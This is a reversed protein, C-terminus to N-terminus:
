HDENVVLAGTRSLKCNKIIWMKMQKKYIKIFLDPDGHEKLMPQSEFSELCPKVTLWYFVDKPVRKLVCTRGWHDRYFYNFGAEVSTALFLFILVFCVIRVRM